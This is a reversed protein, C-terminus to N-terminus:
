RPPVASWCPAAPRRPPVAAQQLGAERGSRIASQPRCRGAPRGAGTRGEEERHRGGLPLDQGQRPQRGARHHRDQQLGERLDAPGRVDADAQGGVAHRRAQRGPRRHLDARGRARHRVAADQRVRAVAPALPVAPRHVRVPRPEGAGRGGLGLRPHLLQVGKPRGTTGSTYILTALHDPGIGAVVEDILRPNARLAEAGLKELDALTLQPPTAGADAAGGLLVVHTVSTQAGAIKLAQKPSEAILVKSQSNAVIYAADEPETTPYVTTTAAGACNIGLDALVWEYSTNALIAVRDELGVGLERLGAAIAKAREGVQAWTFWTLGTDDATPVAFAQGNPTAAVRKFFMDPISRYPVELAM